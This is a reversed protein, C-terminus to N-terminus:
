QLSSRNGIASGPGTLLLDCGRSAASNTTARLTQIMSGASRISILSNTFLEYTGAQELRAQGDHTSLDIVIVEDAKIRDGCYPGGM